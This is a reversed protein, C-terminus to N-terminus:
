SIRGDAGTGNCLCQQLQRLIDYGDKLIPEFRERIIVPNNAMSSPLAGERMKQYFEAPAMNKEDGYVEDGFAYYQPIIVTQYKERLFSPLDSNSDITIRYNEM